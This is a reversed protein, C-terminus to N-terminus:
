KRKGFRQLARIVPADVIDGPVIPDDGEQIACVDLDNEGIEWAKCARLERKNIALKLLMNPASMDSPFHAPLITYRGWRRYQDLFLDLNRSNPPDMHNIRSILVIEKGQLDKSPQPKSSVVIRYSSPRKKDIGMVIAVRLQEADDTEGIRSRLDEFILSAAEADRFCLALMPISDPICVYATAVWQAEDWLPVNILSLIKRDQHKLSDIGFFQDPAERQGLAVPAQTVTEIPDASLAATWSRDRRVPFRDTTRASSWDSIRFKPLQGLINASAIAADSFWLARSFGDKAVEELFSEPNDTVAIQFTTEVILDQLWLRFAEREEQTHKLIVPPHRVDISCNGRSESIRYEPLQSLFESPSINMQLESRYPLLHKDLSTALFAELAGLVVEALFISESTNSTEVTVKCGLVFSCLSFRGKQLLEPQDPIDMNAPQNAARVFWDYVTQPSENEPIVGEARLYDEYGLAYLLSIWSSYLGLDELVPPLLALWKLSWIDTKLLLLGLVFDQARREEWFSKERDDDLVLQQALSSALEMWALVQPVRGIQLELWVLKQVYRLSLPVLTGFKWYESLVQNAAMLMSSRAAWLLGASEYALGCGTLARTWEARYEHLALKQQARGLLQIAAYKRGTHLLQYGRQLLATGAEGESARREILDVVFEFLEDYKANDTILKGLERIIQTIPQVPFEALNESTVLIQKFDAFITDLPRKEVATETLEMLLKNTFAILSNNPRRKDTALRELESKLRNTRIKLNAASPDLKKREASTHLIQWLNTILELDSAQDSGVALEEAQSYLRSLEDFDNYWWFATWAKAYAVRLCQQRHGAEKAVREARQFRGEVEARPLELSRALLAAQLCDEALQYKVGEYRTPDNIQQELEELETKREVDHPGLATRITNSYGTLSLTEIALQVRQHEFICKVIWVRDLIRVPVGYKKTLDEEVQPRDKDKVFQNTIFYVLKYDRGTAVIGKVDSQVKVRWTRKASFAFAWREQGALRGIGEYWRLTVDDSVPYTEADVKSDGGGTPGTQPILNPCIEKEALRRCFHEFEIEQKRSTLTDLHYEFVARSLQPEDVTRSDSFLDPHRARMFESPLFEKQPGLEDITPRSEIHEESDGSM